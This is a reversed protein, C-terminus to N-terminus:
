LVEQIQGHKVHFVKRTPWIELPVLGPETATVFVQAETDKLAQMLKGRRVEDLEAPLDDVLLIGPDELQRVQALTMACVLLKQQGRSFVSKVPKGQYKMSLDARHPGLRTYGREIDQEISGELQEFFEGKSSDWGPQYDFEPECDLLAQGFRMLEPRLNEIYELRYEHLRIAEDALPKDWARVQRRSENKRLSSNRQRLIRHYRQWCGLYSHKVHFVGWDLYQRRLKPGKELLEHSEPTIVHLSLLEQMESTGSIHKGNIKVRTKRAERVLGITTKQNGHKYHAVVMMRAQDHQKLEDIRPTRFSRGQAALSIAELLSTKGSANPGTVINVAPDLSLQSTEINRVHEIEIDQLAM